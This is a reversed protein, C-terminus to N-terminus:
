RHVRLMSWSQSQPQDIGALRHAPPPKLRGKQKVRKEGHWVGLAVADLDFATIDCDDTM